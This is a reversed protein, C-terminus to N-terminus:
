EKMKESAPVFEVKEVLVFDGVKFKEEYKKLIPIVKWGGWL